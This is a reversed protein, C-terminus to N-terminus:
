EKEKTAMWERAAIYARCIAEPRSDGVEQHHQGYYDIVASWAGPKGELRFDLGLEDVLELAQADDTSPSWEPVDTSHSFHEHPGGVSDCFGIVAYKTRNGESDLWRAGSWEGQIEEWPRSPRWGKLEAIRKDLPGIM